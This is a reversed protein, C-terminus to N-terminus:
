RYGSHTVSVSTQVGVYLKWGIDIRSSYDHQHMSVPQQLENHLHDVEVIGPLPMRLPATKLSAEGGHAGSPRRLEIKPQANGVGLDGLAASRLVGV